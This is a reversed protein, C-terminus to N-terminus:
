FYFNIHVHVFSSVQFETRRQALDHKQKQGIFMVIMFHKKFVCSSGPAQFLHWHKLLSNIILLSQYM